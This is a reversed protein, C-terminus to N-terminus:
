GKGNYTEKIDNLTYLDDEEALFKYAKSKKALAAIGEVLSKDENKQLMYDAFDSVAAVKDEPLKELAEMTKEILEKKSMYITQRFTFIKYHFLFGVFNFVGSFKKYFM